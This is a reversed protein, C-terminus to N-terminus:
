NKIFKKTSSKIGDSAKIFYVGKSLTSVDVINTNKVEILKQSLINFVCLDLNKLDEIILKDAVPNQKLNFELLDKDFNSKSLVSDFSFDLLRGFAGGDINPSDDISYGTNENFKIGFFGSGIPFSGGYLYSNGGGHLYSIDDIIITGIRYDILNSSEGLGSAGLNNGFIHRFLVTGDYNFLKLIKSHGTKVRTCNNSACGTTVYNFVKELTMFTDQSFAIDIIQHSGLSSNASNNYNEANGISLTMDAYQTSESQILYENELGITEIEGSDSLIHIANYNVWSQKDDQTPKFNIVFNNEENIFVDYGGFNNPIELDSKVVNYVLNQIDGFDVEVLFVSKEYQVGDTYLGDFADTSVLFSIKNASNKKYDLIYVDKNAEFIESIGLLMSGGNPRPVILPKFQEDQAYFEQYVYSSRVSNEIWALTGGDTTHQPTWSMHMLNNDNLKLIKDIIGYNSAFYSTPYHIPEYFTFTSLDFKLLQSAGTPYHISSSGGYGELFHVVIEEDLYFADKIQPSSNLEWISRNNYVTNSSGTNPDFIPLDIVFLPLLDERKFCKQNVIEFNNNSEFVWLVLGSFINECQCDSDATNSDLNTTVFNLKNGNKLLLTEKISTDFDSILIEQANLNFSAIFFTSLVLLKKM